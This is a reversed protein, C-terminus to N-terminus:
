SQWRWSTWPTARSTPSAMSYRALQRRCFAPQLQSRQSHHLEGESTLLGDGLLRRARRMLHGKRFLEADDVLVRRVHEPHSLLFAEQRGLRFSAVDGQLRALRLLFGSTDAYFWPLHGVLPLANRVPRLPPATAPVVADVSM